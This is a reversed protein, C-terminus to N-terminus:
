YWTSVGGHRSCTGQRHQSFSYTGDSCQASAGVPVDNSFAPAHVQNGDVNTYYSNNSLPANTPAVPTSTPTIIPTAVAAQVPVIVSSANPTETLTPALSATVNSPVAPQSYVGVAILAIIALGIWVLARKFKSM